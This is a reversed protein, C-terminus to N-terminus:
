NFQLILVFASCLSSFRSLLLLFFAMIHRPFVICHFASEENSVISYLLCHFSINLASVLFFLLGSIRYGAFGNKM